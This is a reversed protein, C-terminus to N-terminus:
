LDDMRRSKEVKSGSVKVFKGTITHFTFCSEEDVLGRIYNNSIKRKLISIIGYLGPREM